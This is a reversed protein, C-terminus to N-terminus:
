KIKGKSRGKTNKGDLVGKMSDFEAKPVAAVYRIFDKFQEPLAVHLEQVKQAMTKQMPFWGECVDTEWKEM